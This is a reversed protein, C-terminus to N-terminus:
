GSTAGRRKLEQIREDIGAIEDQLKKRIKELQEIRENRTYFRRGASSGPCMFNAFFKWGESWPDFDTYM